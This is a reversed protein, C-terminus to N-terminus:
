GEKVYSTQTLLSGFCEVLKVIWLHNAKRQKQLAMFVRNLHSLNAYM